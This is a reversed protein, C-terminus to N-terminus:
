SCDWTDANEVRIRASVVKDILAINRLVYSGTSDTTENILKISFTSSLEMVEDVNTPWYQQCKIRGREIITTLMVIFNSSEQQVMRWFEILTNPLPGQTAIYRNVCDNPIIMNVYNANIYDTDTDAASAVVVRNCDDSQDFATRFSAYSIFFICQMFSNSSTCANNSHTYAFRNVHCFIVTAIREFITKKAHRPYQYIPIAKIYNISNSLYHVRHWVMAWCFCLSRSFPMELERCMQITKPCTNASQNRRKLPVTM